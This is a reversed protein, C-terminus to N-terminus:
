RLLLQASPMLYKKNNQKYLNLYLEPLPEEYYELLTRVQMPKFSNNKNNTCTKSPFLGIENTYHAPTGVLWKNEQKILLPTSPQIFQGWPLQRIIEKRIESRHGSYYTPLIVSNLSMKVSTVQCFDHGKKLAYEDVFGLLHTLEHALVEVTDRRDIYLVGSYVNAGGHPLLFGVYRNNTKKIKEPWNRENCQIVEHEFHSCDLLTLPIYQVPLFCFFDALQKSKVDHILQELYELDEVNTAYFQLSNDCDSQPLFPPKLSLDQSHIGYRILKNRLSVLEPIDGLKSVLAMAREHDEQKIAERIVLALITPDDIFASTLNQFFDYDGSQQYINALAIVAMLQNLEVAKQLWIKQQYRQQKTEYYEALQYAIAGDYLGIISAKRLWPPSFRIEKTLSYTLLPLYAFQEAMKHDFHTVEGSAIKSQFYSPWFFSSSPLLVLLSVILSKFVKM